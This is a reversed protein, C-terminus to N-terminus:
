CVQYSTLHSDTTYSHM